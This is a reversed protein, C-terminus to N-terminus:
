QKLNSEQNWLFILEGYQHPILGVDTCTYQDFRKSFVIVM